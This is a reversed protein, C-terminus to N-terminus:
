LYFRGVFAWMVRAFFLHKEKVTVNLKKMFPDLLHTRGPLTHKGAWTCRVVDTPLGKSNCEGFSQFCTWNIGRALYASGNEVEPTPYAVVRGGFSCNNAIAVDRTINHNPTYYFGDDSFACEKCGPVAFPKVHPWLPDSKNVFGNSYNAPITNDLTGHVDMLAIPHKPPGKWFGYLASGAVPVAAALQTGGYQVAMAYAMMAGNSMGTVYARRTDVCLASNVREMIAAFYLTDDACTSSHCRDHGSVNVRLPDHCARRSADNAKARCTQYCGYGGFTARDPDCTHGNPGPSESTGYVNWSRKPWPFGNSYCHPKACDSLGQPYVAIFGREGRDTQEAQFQDFADDRFKREASSYFGHFSYVVPLPTTFQKKKNYYGHPVYVFAERNGDVLLPDAVPVTFQTLSGATFKLAATGRQTSSCGKSPLPPAGPLPTLDSQLTHIEPTDYSYSEAAYTYSGSDYSYSYNDYSYSYNYTALMHVSPADAM